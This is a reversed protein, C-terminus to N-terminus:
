RGNTEELLGIWAMRYGMSITTFDCIRGLVERLTGSAAWEMTVGQLLGLAQRLGDEATEPRRIIEAVAQGELPVMEARLDGAWGAAAQRRLRYSSSSRTTLVKEIPCSGCPEELGHVVGHCPRGVAKNRPIRLGKLFSQNAEMIRFDRSILIIGDSSNNFIGEYLGRAKVQGSRGSGM